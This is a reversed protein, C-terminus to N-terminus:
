SKWRKLEKITTELNENELLSLHLTEEPTKLLFTEGENEEMIVVLGERRLREAIQFAKARRGPPHVLYIPRFPEEQKEKKEMVEVVRELFLAFGCAPLDKGFLRFLEDYRGGALIPYGLYPSFGEFIVGTYYDFDRILGLNLFLCEEFGFDRFRAFLEELYDLIQIWEPESAFRKGEMLVEEKGRLFPFRLLFTAVPHTDLQHCQWFNQLAVFDKSKVMEKVENKQDDNLPLKRLLYRFIGVHGIDVQFQEIGAAELSSLALAIVEGDSEITKSGIKEIGIQTLESELRFPSVPYRFIKGAYYVRRPLRSELEKAFMRAVSTTFEPRLCVLKGERNVFQFMRKQIEEGATKALVQYSEIIPPEVEEYGWREFLQCLIQCIKRRLRAEKPYIDRMGSVFEM